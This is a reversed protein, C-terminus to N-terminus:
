ADTVHKQWRSSLLVGARKFHDLNPMIRAHVAQLSSLVHIPSKVWENWVKHSLIEICAVDAISGQPQFVRDGGLFSTPVRANHYTSKHQLKNCYTSSKYGMGQVRGM